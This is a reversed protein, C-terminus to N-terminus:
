NQHFELMKPHVFNRVRRIFPPFLFLCIFLSTLSACVTRVTIYKFVNFPSFFETIYPALFYFM